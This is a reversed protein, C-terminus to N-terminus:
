TDDEYRTRTTAAAGGWAWPSRTIHYTAGVNFIMADDDGGSDAMSSLSRAVSRRVSWQDADDDTTKV